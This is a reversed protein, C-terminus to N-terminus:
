LLPSEILSHENKVLISAYISSEIISAVLNQTVQCNLCSDIVAKNVSMGLHEGNRFECDHADVGSYYYILVNQQIIM